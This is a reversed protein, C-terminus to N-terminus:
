SFYEENYQATDGSTVSSAETRADYQGYNVPEETTEEFFHRKIFDGFQQACAHLNSPGSQLNYLMIKSPTGFFAHLANTFNNSM